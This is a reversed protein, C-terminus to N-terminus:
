SFGFTDKMCNIRVDKASSVHYGHLALVLLQLCVRNHLLNLKM